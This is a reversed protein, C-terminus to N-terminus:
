AGSALANKNIGTQRPGLDLRQCGQFRSVQMRTRRIYSM